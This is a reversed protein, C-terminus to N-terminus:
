AGGVLDQDHLGVRRHARDPRHEPQGRDAAGAGRQLGRALPRHVHAAARRPRGQRRHAGRVRGGGGHDPGPAVGFQGVPLGPENHMGYVEDIGFREMMGDKVMAEGGGGGEEAPQFIVV